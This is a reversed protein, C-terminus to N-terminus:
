MKFKQEVGWSGNIYGTCTTRLISWTNFISTALIYVDAVM